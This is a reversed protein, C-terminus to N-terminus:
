APTSENKPQCDLKWTLNELSGNANLAYNVNNIQPNCDCACAERLYHTLVANYVLQNRADAERSSFYLYSAAILNLAVFLIAAVIKLKSKM